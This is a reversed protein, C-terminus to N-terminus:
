EGSPGSPEPDPNLTNIDAAAQVRSPHGAADHINYHLVNVESRRQERRSILRHLHACALGAAERSQMTTMSLTVDSQRVRRGVGAGWLCVCM